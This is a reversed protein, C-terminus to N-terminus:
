SAADFWGFRQFNWNRLLSRIDFKGAMNFFKLSVKKNQASTRLEYTTVGETRNRKM